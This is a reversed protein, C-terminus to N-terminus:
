RPPVKSSEFYSNIVRTDLELESFHLKPWNAKSVGRYFRDPRTKLVARQGSVRIFVPRLRGSAGSSEVCTHGPGLDTVCLNSILTRCRM